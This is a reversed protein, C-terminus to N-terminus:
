EPVITSSRAKPTALRAVPSASVGDCRKWTAECELVKVAVGDHFQALAAAQPEVVGGAGVHAAQVLRDGVGRERLQHGVGAADDAVAGVGPLPHVPSRVQIFLFQARREGFRRDQRRIRSEFVRVVAEAQEAEDNGCDVALAVVVPDRALNDRRTSQRVRLRIGGDSGGRRKGAAM